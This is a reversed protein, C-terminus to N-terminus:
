SAEESAKLHACPSNSPIRFKTIGHFILMAALPSKSIAVILAGDKELTFLRIGGIMWPQLEM